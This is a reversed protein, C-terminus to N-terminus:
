RQHEPRTPSMAPVELTPADLDSYSASHVARVLAEPSHAYSPVPGGLGDVSRKLDRLTDKIETVDNSIVYVKYVAFLVLGYMILSFAGGIVFEM